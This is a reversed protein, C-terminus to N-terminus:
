ENIDAALVKLFRRLTAHSVEKQSAAEFELKAKAM